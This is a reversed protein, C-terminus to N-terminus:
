PTRPSRGKRKQQGKQRRTARQAAAKGKRTYPYKKGKLDTPM